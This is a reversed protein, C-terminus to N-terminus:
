QLKMRCYNTMGDVEKEEETLRLYGQVSIKILNHLSTPATGDISPSGIVKTYNELAEICQRRMKMLEWFMEIDRQNKAEEDQM